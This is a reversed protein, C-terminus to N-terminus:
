KTSIEQFPYEAMLDVLANQIEIKAQRKM